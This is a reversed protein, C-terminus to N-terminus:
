GGTIKNIEADPIARIRRELEETQNSTMEKMRQVMIKAAGRRSRPFFDVIAEIMAATADDISDGGLSYGFEEASIDNQGKCFMWLVEVHLYPNVCMKEIIENNINVLDVGLKEKIDKALGVTLSLNWERGKNDKFKSM